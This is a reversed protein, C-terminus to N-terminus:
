QWSARRQFQETGKNQLHGATNLYNIKERIGGAGRQEVGMKQHRIRADPISKQQSNCKPM